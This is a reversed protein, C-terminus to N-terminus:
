KKKLEDVENYVFRSIEEIVKEQNNFNEGRTMICLLYPREPYYVIGCDHLQTNEKEKDITREGFKHAIIVEPPVGKKLGNMYGGKSLMELAKESMERNLYSSNYLVRFFGAYDKVRVSVEVSTDKFPVGVSNFVGSLYNLKINKLLIVVGTNDSKEIMSEAVETLSYTQGVKLLDDFVINPILFKNLDNESVTVRKELLSNNDEAQRLFAMMIPVKLLSAPSFEEKENIGIWPGNNLDRFYLSIHNISYKDKLDEVKENILKSQVILEEGSINNECDLIPNTLPFSDNVDRVISHRTKDKNGERIMFIFLIIIILLLLFNTLILYRKYLIKHEEKQM